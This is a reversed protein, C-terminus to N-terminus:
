ELVERVHIFGAHYASVAICRDPDVWFDRPQSYEKIVRFMLSQDWDFGCPTVGRYKIGDHYTIDVTTKPHIPCEGRNHVHWKGDNYNTM